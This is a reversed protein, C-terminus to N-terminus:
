LQIDEHEADKIAGPYFLMFKKGVDRDCQHFSTAERSVEQNLEMNLNGNTSISCQICDRHCFRLSDADM